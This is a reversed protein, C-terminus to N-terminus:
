CAASFGTLVDTLGREQSSDPINVALEGGKLAEEIGKNLDQPM